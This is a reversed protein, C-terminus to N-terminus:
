TKPSPRRPLSHPSHTLLEPVEKGVAEALKEVTALTPNHAGAEIAILIGPQVRTLKYVDRLSLGLAIRERKFNTGFTKQLRGHPPPRTMAVRPTPLAHAHALPMRKLIATTGM